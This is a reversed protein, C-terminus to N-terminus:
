TPRSARQTLPLPQLAPERRCRGATRNRLRAKHSRSGAAIPQRRVRSRRQDGAPGTVPDLSVPPVGDIEGLQVPRTLQGEMDGSSTM